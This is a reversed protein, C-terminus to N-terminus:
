YFLAEKDVQTLDLILVKTVLTAELQEELVLVLEGQAELVAKVVKIERVMKVELVAKVVKIEKVVKVELVAKVVKIERVVKVELVAKGALILVLILEEIVLMEVQQEELM